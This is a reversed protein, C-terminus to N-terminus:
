PQEEEGDREGAAMAARRAAIRAELVDRDTIGSTLPASTTAVDRPADDAASAEPTPPALLPRVALLAVAVLLLSAALVLVM